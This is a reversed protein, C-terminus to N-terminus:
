LADPNHSTRRKRPSRGDESRSDEGSTFLPSVPDFSTHQTEVSFARSLLRRSKLIADKLIAQAINAVLPFFVLVTFLLAGPHGTFWKDIIAATQKLGFRKCLIIISATAIRSLVVALLWETLQIAWWGYSPPQGYYGCAAVIDWWDKREKEQNCEQRSLLGDNQSPLLSRRMARSQAYKVMAHHFLLALAVGVTNDIVYVVFYWSCQSTTATTSSVVMSMATNYLHIVLSSVGACFVVM